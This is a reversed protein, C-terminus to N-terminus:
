ALETDLLRALALEWTALHHARKYAGLRDFLAHPVRLWASDPYFHAMMERWVAIPMRCRTEATWPLQTMRLAGGTEDFVTGSLLLLLPVEGGELGHFYKTAGVNFDFNCAVPLTAFWPLRWRPAPRGLLAAIDALMQSFPVNQGGLIYREGISGRHLAALHGEAVDDVHVLNLGTEVFAPLRGSAAAVIIRGTPTPRRDGPGIPTSPNVIVAPLGREAIMERVLREAAIKSRKYAGVAHQEPLSSSEDAATGDPRLALTAVSSTYVVREIGVALSEEMVHRTGAVNSEFVEARARAWLRYDAAVHFVYRCGVMAARVSSRDRMDGPVLTLGPGALHDHPSTPRVLARVAFGAGILKGLVAAGVFGSAGTLLVHEGRTMIFGDNKCASPTFNAGLECAAFKRIL